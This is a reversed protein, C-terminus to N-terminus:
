GQSPQVPNIIDFLASYDRDGLGAALARELVAHIGDLHSAVVGDRRCEAMILDVDKLLHRVPFNPDRFNRSLLRPLKKHFTPAYLASQRLLSMFLDPDIGRSQIMGLSVAFTSMLGAILQNVALKFASAQGVAGILQPSPGFCELLARWQHFQEPRAGAMLILRGAATEKRSGLVPCEFYDGGAAMIREQLRVSEAPAITGMQIVTKDRLSAEPVGDLVADIAAADTLMLIVAEGRGVAERPGPMVAAGDGELERAKRATRNYVAVEHGAELLRRVMPRGMLGTGFFALKM